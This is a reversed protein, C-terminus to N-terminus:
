ENFHNSIMYRKGEVSAKEYISRQNSLNKLAQEILSAMDMKFDFQINLESLNAQLLGIKASLRKKHKSIQRMLLEKCSFNGQRFLIIM